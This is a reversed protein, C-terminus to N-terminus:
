IKERWTALKLLEEYTTNEKKITMDLLSEFLVMVFQSALGGNVCNDLVELIQLATPEDNWKEILPFVCPDLQGEPAELLTEKIQKNM